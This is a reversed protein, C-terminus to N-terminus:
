EASDEESGCDCSECESCDSEIIVPLEATPEELPQTLPKRRNWREQNTIRTM